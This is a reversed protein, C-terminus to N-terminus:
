YAEYDDKDYRNKWKDVENFYLDRFKDVEERLAKNERIIIILCFLFGLVLGTAFTIGIASWNIFEISNMGFKIYKWAM